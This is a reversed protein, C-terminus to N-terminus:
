AAAPDNIVGLFDDKITGICFQLFPFYILYSVCLFSFKLNM